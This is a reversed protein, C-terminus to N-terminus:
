SGSVSLYNYKAHLLMTIQICVDNCNSKTAHVDPVNPSLHASVQGTVPGHGGPPQRLPYVHVLM